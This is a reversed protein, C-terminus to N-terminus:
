ASSFIRNQVHAFSRTHVLTFSRISLIVITHVLMVVWMLKLLLLVSVHTQMLIRKKILNPWHTNTMHAELVCKWSFKHTFGLEIMFLYGCRTKQMTASLTSRSSWKGHIQTCSKATKRENVCVWKCVDLFPMEAGCLVEDGCGACVSCTLNVRNKANGSELVDWLTVILTEPCTTTLWIPM